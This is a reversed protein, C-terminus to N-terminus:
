FRNQRVFIVNGNHLRSLFPQKPVAEEREIVPLHSEAGMDIILNGSFILYFLLIGFFGATIAAYDSIKLM